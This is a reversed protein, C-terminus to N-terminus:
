KLYLNFLHFSTFFSKGYESAKSDNIAIVMTEVPKVVHATIAEHSVEDHEVAKPFESSSIM